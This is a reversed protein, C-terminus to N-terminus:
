GNKDELYHLQVQARQVIEDYYAKYQGITPSDPIYGAAVNCTHCISGRESERLCSPCLNGTIVSVELSPFSFM